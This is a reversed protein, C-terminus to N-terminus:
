PEQPASGTGSIAPEPESRPAFLALVIATNALILLFFLLAAHSYVFADAGRIEETRVIDGHGDDFVVSVPVEDYYGFPPGSGWILIRLSTRPAIRPITGVTLIGSAGDFRASDRLASRESTVLEDGDVSYGTLRTLGTVRIDVNKLSQDRGNEITVVVFHRTDELFDGLAVLPSFISDARALDVLRINGIKRNFESTLKSPFAVPHNKVTISVKPTGLLWAGIGWVLGAVTVLSTLAGLWAGNRELFARFRAAWEISATESVPNPM